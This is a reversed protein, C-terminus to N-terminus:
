VVYIIGYISGSWREGQSSGWATIVSGAGQLVAIGLLQWYVWRWRSKTNIIVFILGAIYVLNEAVSAQWARVLYLQSNPSVTIWPLTTFAYVYAWTSALLSFDLLSYRLSERMGRQHPQLAIAAMLPVVFLFHAANGAYGVMAAAPGSHTVLESYAWCLSGVLWLGCGGAILIWFSNTRRYGTDANALLAANALLPLVCLTVDRLLVQAHGAPLLMTAAAFGGVVVIWCAVILKFRQSKPRSGMM